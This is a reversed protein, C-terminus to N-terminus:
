TGRRFGGALWGGMLGSLLILTMPLVWSEPPLLPIQASPWWVKASTGWLMAALGVFPEHRAAAKAALAGVIVPPAAFAIATFAMLLLMTGITTKPGAAEWWQPAAWLAFRFAAYGVVNGGLVSLM